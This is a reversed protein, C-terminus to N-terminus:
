VVVPRFAVAGPLGQARFETIVFEAGASVSALPDVDPVLAPCGRPEPFLDTAPFQRPEEVPVPFEDEGGPDPLTSVDRSLAVFLRVAGGLDPRHGLRTQLRKDFDPVGGPFAPSGRDHGGTVVAFLDLGTRTNLPLRLHEGAFAGDVTKFGRLHPE